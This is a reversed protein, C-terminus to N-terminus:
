RNSYLSQYSHAIHINPYDAQINSIAKHLWEEGKGIKPDYLSYIYLSAASHKNLYALMDPTLDTGNLNHLKKKETWKSWLQLAIGDPLLFDSALLTKKYEESKLNQIKSKSNAEFLRYTMANAFYLFNVCTYKHRQYHAVIQQIIEAEDAASLKAIIKDM